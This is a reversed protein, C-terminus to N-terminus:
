DVQPLTGIAALEPAAPHNPLRAAAALLLGWIANAFICLPMQLNQPMAYIFTVGPIWFMWNTILIPLTRETLFNANLERRLKKASYGLAQWRMVISLFPVLWFASYIFQDVLIKPVLVSWSAGQGFWIGQLEYFKYILSGTFFFLAMKFAAHELHARTWRGGHLFYVASIESLLGGALSSAFAAALIGGAHQWAAVRSLVSQAAPWLYYSAVLLAM